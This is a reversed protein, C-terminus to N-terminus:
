IEVQIHYPEEGFFQCRWALIGPIRVLDGGDPGLIRFVAILKVQLNALIYYYYKYTEKYKHM